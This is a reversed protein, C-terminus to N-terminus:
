ANLCENSKVPKCLEIKKNNYEKLKKTIKFLNNLIKHNGANRHLSLM